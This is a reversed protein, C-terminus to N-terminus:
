NLSKNIQNIHDALVRKELHDIKEDIDLPLPVDTKQASKRYLILAQGMSKQSRQFSEKYLMDGQEVLLDAVAVALEAEFTGDHSFLELTEDFDLEYFSKPTDKSLKTIAKEIEQVAERYQNQNKKFIIKQLLQTLAQIQRMLFDQEHLQM